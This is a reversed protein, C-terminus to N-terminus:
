IVSAILEATREPMEANLRHGCAIEATQWAPDAQLRKHIGAFPSNPGYREACVYLRRAIGRHAGSLRLREVMTALPHPTLRDQYANTKGPGGIRHFMPPVGIGDGNAAGDLHTRAGEPGVIDFLSQGDDPLFADLYVLAGIRGAM